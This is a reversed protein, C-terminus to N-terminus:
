EVNHFPSLVCCFNRFEREEVSLVCDLKEPKATSPPICHVWSELLACSYITIYDLWCLVCIIYTVFIDNDLLMNRSLRINDPLDRV